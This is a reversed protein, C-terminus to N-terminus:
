FSLLNRNSDCMVHTVLKYYHIHMYICIIDLTKLSVYGSDLHDSVLIWTNLQM